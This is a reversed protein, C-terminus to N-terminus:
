SPPTFALPGPKAPSPTAALSLAMAAWSTGCISIFQDVGHPFGSEFYVQAPVARKTVLWSGDIQQNSLLWRCGRSYATDTAPLGGCEHLMVMAEGTAYADAPAGPTQCWGGGPQQRALLDAAASRVPGAGAGSWRLGALRFALDETTTAPEILLWHRAADVAAHTQQAHDAAAYRQMALVALATLTFKSAELPPRNRWPMWEGHELQKREIYREALDLAADPAVDAASLGALGYAAAMAGDVTILDLLKDANAHATAQQLLARHVTFFGYVRDRQRMDSAEDVTIGARRAYAAALAPLSQHHCSFCQPKRVLFTDASSQVLRLGRGAADKLIERETDAPRFAASLFLAGTLAACIAIAGPRRTRTRRLIPTAM